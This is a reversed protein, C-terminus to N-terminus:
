KLSFQQKLNYLSFRGAKRDVAEEQYAVRSADPSFKEILNSIDFCRKNPFQTLQNEPIIADDVANNKIFDKFAENTNGTYLEIKVNEIKNKHDQIVNSLTNYFSKDALERILKPRSYSIPNYNNLSMEYGSAIVLKFSENPFHLVANKILQLSKESFDTPILVTKM